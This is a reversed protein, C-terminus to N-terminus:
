RPELITYVCEICNNILYRVGKGSNELVDDHRSTNGTRESVLDLEVM